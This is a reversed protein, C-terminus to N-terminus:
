ATPTLLQRPVFIIYASCKATQLSFKLNEKLSNKYDWERSSYLKRCSQGILTCEWRKIGMRREAGRKEEQQKVPDKM